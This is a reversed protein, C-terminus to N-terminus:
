AEAIDHQQLCICARLRVNPLSYILEYRFWGTALRVVLAKDSGTTSVGCVMRRWGAKDEAAVGMEQWKCRFGSTWMEKGETSQCQQNPWKVRLFGDGYSRYHTPPVNLRVWDVVNRKEPRKSTDMTTKQSKATNATTQYGSRWLTKWKM